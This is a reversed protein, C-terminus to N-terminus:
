LVDQLRAAIADDNLPLRAARMASRQEPDRRGVAGRRRGADLDHPDQVALDDLAGGVPVGQAHEVLEAQDRTELLETLTRAPARANARFRVSSRGRGDPTATSHEAPYM